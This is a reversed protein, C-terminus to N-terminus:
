LFKREGTAEYAALMARLRRWFINDNRGRYTGILGRGTDHPRGPSWCPRGVLNLATPIPSRFLAQM